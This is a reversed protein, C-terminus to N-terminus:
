RLRHTLTLLLVINVTNVHRKTCLVRVTNPKTDQHIIYSSFKIILLNANLMKVNLVKLVSFMHTHFKTPIVVNTVKITIFTAAPWNTLHRSHSVIHAFSLRSPRSTLDLSSIDISLNQKTKIYCTATYVLVVDTTQASVQKIYKLTIFSSLFIIVNVM